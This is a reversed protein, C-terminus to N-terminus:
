VAFDASSAVFLAGLLLFLLTAKTYHSCCLHKQLQILQEWAGSRHELTSYLASECAGLDEASRCISWRLNFRMRRM